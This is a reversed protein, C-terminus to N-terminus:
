VAAGSAANGSRPQAYSERVYSGIMEENGNADQAWIAGRHTKACLDAYFQAQKLGLGV